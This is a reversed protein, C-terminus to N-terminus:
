LMRVFGYDTLVQSYSTQQRSPTLVLVSNSTPFYGVRLADNTENGKVSKERVGTLSEVEDILVCILTEEDEAMDQIDEFLKAVLKGSESFYKSLLSHSSIEVLKAQTFHRGLRITLKQALALCLTTKGTGPPGYLLLLRNWNFAKLSMKLTKSMSMMRTLFRLLDTPMATDFILTDWIGDLSKSPLPIVRAQPLDDDSESPWISGKNGEGTETEGDRLEYAQVDLQVDGLRHFSTIEETGTFEM